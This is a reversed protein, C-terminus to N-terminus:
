MAPTTKTKNYDVTHVLKGKADYYKWIGTLKGNSYAGEYRKEGNAYYSATAGDLIGNTFYDDSWLKGNPYFFQCEGNRRGALYYCKEKLVGNTYRRILPGDKISTDAPPLTKTIQKKATDSSPTINSSTSNPPTNSSHCGYLLSISVILSCAIKKM